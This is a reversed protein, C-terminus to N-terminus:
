GVELGLKERSQNGENTIPTITDELLDLAGMEAVIMTSLITPNQEVKTNERSQSAGDAIFSDTDKSLAPSKMNVLM